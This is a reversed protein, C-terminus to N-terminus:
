VNKEEAEKDVSIAEDYKNLLALAISVSLADVAAESVPIKVGAADKIDWDLLLTKLRKDRYLNWNVDSSNSVHNFETAKQLLTNSASWTLQTFTFRNQKVKDKKTPDAKLLAAESDELVRVIPSGSKTKEVVYFLDIDITTNNAFLDSM